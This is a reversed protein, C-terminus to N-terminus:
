GIVDTIKTRNEYVWIKSFDVWDKTREYQYNDTSMNSMVKDMRLIMKDAFNYLTERNAGYAHLSQKMQGFIDIQDRKHSGINIWLWVIYTLDEWREGEAVCDWDIIAVPMREVFVTNCPSLDNHCIVRGSSTFRTSVDHFERVIEMFRCLQDINTKGIEVPVEGQIYRYKDRGFNDCGLYRQSYSYNQMELFILFSNAFDSEPKHPRCVIDNIKVVGVTSRGGYLKQEKM